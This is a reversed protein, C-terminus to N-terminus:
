AKRRYRVSVGVMRVRTNLHDTAKAVKFILQRGSVVVRNLVTQPYQTSAVLAGGGGSGTTRTNFAAFHPLVDVAGTAASACTITLYNTDDATVGNMSFVTISEIYIDADDAILLLETKDVTGAAETFVTASATEMISYGFPAYDKAVRSVHTAVAM